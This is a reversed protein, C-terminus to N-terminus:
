IYICLHLSEREREIGHSLQLPQSPTFCLIVKEREREREEHIRWLLTCQSYTIFVVWNRSCYYHTLTHTHTCTHSACEFENRHTETFYKMYNNKIPSHEVHTYFIMNLNIQVIHTSLANILRLYIYRIIIVIFIVICFQAQVM